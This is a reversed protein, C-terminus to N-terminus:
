SIPGRGSSDLGNVLSLLISGPFLEPCTLFSSPIKGSSLEVFCTMIINKVGVGVELVCRVSMLSFINGPSLNPSQVAWFLKCSPSAPFSIQPLFSLPFSSAFFPLYSFLGKRPPLIVRLKTKIWGVYTYPMFHLGSREVLKLCFAVLNSFAKAAM